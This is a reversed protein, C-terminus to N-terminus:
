GLAPMPETHHGAAIPAINVGSPVPAEASSPAAASNADAPQDCQEDHPPIVPM